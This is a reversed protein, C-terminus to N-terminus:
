VYKTHKEKVRKRRITQKTRNWNKEIDTKTNNTKTQKPFKPPKNSEKYTEIMCGFGSM